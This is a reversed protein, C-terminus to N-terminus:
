NFNSKHLKGFYPRYPLGSDRIVPDFVFLQLNCSEISSSYYCKSKCPLTMAITANLQELDSSGLKLFQMPMSADGM